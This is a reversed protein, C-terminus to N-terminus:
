LGVFSIARSHPLMSSEPECSDARPLCALTVHMPRRECSQEHWYWICSTVHVHLHVRQQWAPRGTALSAHWFHLTPAAAEAVAAAAAGAPLVEVTLAKEGGSSSAAASAYAESSVLLYVHQEEAGERLLQPVKVVQEHM